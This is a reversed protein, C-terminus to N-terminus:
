RFHFSAGVIGKGGGERTVLNKPDRNSHGLLKLISLRIAPPPANTLLVWQGQLPGIRLEWYEPECGVAVRERADSPSDSSRLEVRCRVHHFSLVSERLPDESGWAHM